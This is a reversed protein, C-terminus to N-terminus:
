NVLKQLCSLKFIVKVTKIPYNFIQVIKPYDITIKELPSYILNIGMSELISTINKRFHSNTFQHLFLYFSSLSIWLNIPSLSGRQNGM